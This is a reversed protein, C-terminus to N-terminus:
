RIGNVKLWEIRNKKKKLIANIYKYFLQPQNRCKHAINKENNRKKKGPNIQTIIDRMNTNEWVGQRRKSRWGCWAEEMSARAEDCNKNLWEKKVTIIRGM